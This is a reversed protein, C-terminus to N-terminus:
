QSIKKAEQYLKEDEANLAKFLLRTFFNLEIVEKNIFQKSNKEHTVERIPWEMKNALRKLDAEYNEFFGIFHFQKLDAGKLFHTIKNRTERHRMYSTFPENVRSKSAENNGRRITEKWWNYNSILRGKPERLFTVLIPKDRHVIDEIEAYRFHGHIAEIHNPITSSLLIGKKNAELCDERKVKLVNEKGYNQELIKLLSSGGTKPVHLFIFKVM